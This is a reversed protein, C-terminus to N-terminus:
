GHSLLTISFDELSNLKVDAISFRADNFHEADPVAICKMKAAKAAICGNVSDEIVLCESPHLGLKEATSLFVAPHPKGYFENEASCYLEFYNWLGLRNLVSRIIKKSSSSALAIRIHAAQINELCSLVGPLLSGKENVLHIVEDEIQQVVESAAVEKWPKKQYWYEVVEDVRMGMTKLCDSQSLEIGLPKFVATEAEQWFPESNLLVGDMDFIVAQFNM